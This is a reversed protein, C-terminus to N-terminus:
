LTTYPSQEPLSTTIDELEAASRHDLQSIVNFFKTKGSSIDALFFSRKPKPSGRLQNSL